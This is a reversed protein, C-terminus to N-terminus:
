KHVHLAQNRIERSGISDGYIQSLQVHACCSMSAAWVLGLSDGLRSESAIALATLVTQVALVALM